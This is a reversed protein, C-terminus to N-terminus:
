CLAIRYKAAPLGARGHNSTHRAVLDALFNFLANDFVSALYFNALEVASHTGMALGDRQHYTRDRYQFYNNDAGYEIWEKGSVEKIEPSTYTSLNVFGFESTKSVKKFQGKNNREQKKM